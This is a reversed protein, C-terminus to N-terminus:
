LTRAWTIAVVRLAGSEKLAAACGSLTAGTTHVDDVLIATRPAPGRPEFGLRGAARREDGSAGLQRQSGAARRLARALPLGTKNVLARALLEAPDFGRTRRRAPHAPVAVIALEPVPAEVFVSRWAAPPALYASTRAAPPALQASTRAAPPALYASTRAAPPALQASTRAAPPALYASTRAAPPAVLASPRAAHPAAVASPLLAAPANAAIQAAMVDALPRAASFKLAHMADRAVGEYAVASWAADFPAGRAPCCAEEFMEAGAGDGTAACAPRGAVHPLPLACRPCCREQALWPLARRCAACLVDAARRGPARCAACRPPVVLAVLEAALM